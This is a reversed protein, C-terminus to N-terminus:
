RPYFQNAYPFDQTDWPPVDYLAPNEFRRQVNNSEVEGGIRRYLKYGFESDTLARNQVLSMLRDLQEGKELNGARRAEQAAEFIKRNLWGRTSDINAGPTFGEKDQVAHQIEHLLGSKTLQVPDTGEALSKKALADLNLYLSNSTPDHAALYRSEAPLRKVPMSALEPYADYLAPHDLLNGLNMDGSMGKFRSESDPIEYRWKGDGGKFWGTLERIMAPSYNSDQSLTRAIPLNALRTSDGAASEGMAGLRGGFVGLAGRPAFPAQPMALSVATLGADGPDYPAGRWASRTLDAAHALTQAIGVGAGVPLAAWPQTQLTPRVFPAISQLWDDFGAAYSQKPSGALTNYDSPM